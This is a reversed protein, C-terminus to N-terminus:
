RTGPAARAARWTSRRAAAASWWWARASRRRRAARQRAGPLRRRRVVWPQSYDLQPLRKQRQAGFALYVADFRPACSAGAGAAHGAGPRLARRRGARRHARDRRRAGRAGAPLRSHRLADARRTRAAGRVADRRLGRRRLQYAASLGSPGGGVVAVRERARRQPPPSPGLRTRARHRRRLARAQLDVAARRLRRPQLRERLPPPLHPRHRRPVPQPAVADALRRPLRARAGPRDVRRHRRAGPLRCPLALAGARAAAAGRALHRDQHGRHQRHDLDAPYRRRHPANM